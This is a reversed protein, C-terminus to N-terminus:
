RQFAIVIVSTLSSNSHDTSDTVIIELNPCDALCVDLLRRGIGLGFLWFRLALFGSDCPIRRMRMRAVRTMMPPFVIEMVTM